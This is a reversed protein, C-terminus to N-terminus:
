GVKEGLLVVSQGLPFDLGRRIIASEMRLPISLLSNLWSAIPAVGSAPQRQFVPEWLRFKALAIPMLLSNAYTARLVRIGAAEVLARLRRRTFRQREFAFQSHRSHLVDLAAVRMALIGGPKLVRAMERVPATERGRPFHVIVDLSLVADFAADRFPLSAADGQVLEELGMGRAHRLGEWGLDLPVIRWAYRRRFERAFYGIGCGAELACGAPRAALARDLLPFLIRRMGRFWWFNEESRAINGFEAPNMM